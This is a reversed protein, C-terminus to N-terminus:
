LLCSMPPHVPPCSAGYIPGARLSTKGLSSTGGECRLPSPVKLQKGKGLTGGSREDCRDLNRECLRTTNKDGREICRLSRSDPTVMKNKIFSINPYVLCCTVDAGGSVPDVFSTHPVPPSYLSQPNNVPM